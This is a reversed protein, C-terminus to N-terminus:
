PDNKMEHYLPAYVYRSMTEIMDFGDWKFTLDMTKGVPVVRDGGRVGNEIVFRQIKEGDLGFFSLTQCSKGMLPILEDMSKADYEFFFGGGYKYDMLDATLEDTKIRMVVNDSDVLSVHLNNASLYCFQDYKDIAFIEKFDYKENVIRKVEKWFIDKAAQIHDGFWVVIRPSSCANQDTYYTDTYFGSVLKEIDCDIVKDSNLLAISHRDAFPLEISRPPLKARRILDITQDGGWIIRIDCISSLYQTIEEDHEYKILILYREFDDFGESFTKKLASVIIGVQEFDKNSLRVININGALLCSTFSVAFNIPVNSPAIHFAVGRGIKQDKGSYYHDKIQRLSANRIWFAYSIVDEFMHSKPDKMINKSFQNLFEITREDWTPRAPTFPSNILLEYSGTLFTFKDENPAIPTM